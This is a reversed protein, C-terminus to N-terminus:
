AKGRDIQGKGRTRKPGCVKGRPGALGIDLFGNAQLGRVRVIGGDESTIERERHRSQIVGNAIELNRYLQIRVLGAVPEIERTGILEGAVGILLCFGNLAGGRGIRHRRMDSPLGGIKEKQLSVYGFSERVEVGNQRVIRIGGVRSELKAPTGAAISILYEVVSQGLPRIEIKGEQTQQNGLLFDGGGINRPIM